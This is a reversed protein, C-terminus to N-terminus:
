YKTSGGKARICAEIRRPMSLILNQVEPVPTRRWEVEIKEMLEHVSAPTREYGNLCWKLNDWLNEIPNLDPSQAPWEMVEIHNDEFWHRALASTHKPDGDQQFIFNGHRQKDKRITKILHKDLLKVYAPGDMIGDINGVEGVGKMSICAWVMVSGGGHKVTTQITRKSLGERKEVWCYRRGDSGMHNIKTEDSFYVHKWDETTWHRHKLCWDLQRKIHGKRLLPKKVKVRSKLNADKLVNRVTQDCVGLGLHRRAEAATDVKGSLVTTLIRRKDKDTLKRPRGSKATQPPIGFKKRYKTITSPAIPIVAHIKSYSKGDLLMQHLEAQQSKPLSMIPIHTHWVTCVHKIYAIAHGPAIHHYKDQM